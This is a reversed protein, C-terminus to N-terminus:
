YEEKEKGDGKGDSGERFALYYQLQAMNNLLLLVEMHVPPVGSRAGRKVFELLPTLKKVQEMPDGGSRNAQQYRKNAESIKSLQHCSEERDFSNYCKECAQYTRANIDMKFPVEGCSCPVWIGM